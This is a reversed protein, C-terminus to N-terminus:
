RKRGRHMPMSFHKSPHVSGKVVFARSQVALLNDERMIRLVRKRYILHYSMLGEIYHTWHDGNM